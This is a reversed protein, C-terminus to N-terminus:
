FLTGLQFLPMYIALIMTGVLIALLVLTIPELLTLWQQVRHNLASEYDEAAKNLMKPLTGTQEGMQIMDLMLPPLIGAESLSHHLSQGAQLSQTIFPWQCRWLPQDAIGIANDLAKLLPLGSDLLIALTHAFRVWAAQQRLSHILPWPRRRGLYGGGAIILVLYGGWERVWHACQFLTETLPPLPAELQMFLQEFRPMLGLLLGLMVLAGVSIICLPYLLAQQLRQRLQQQKAQHQSIRTLMLPLQGSAEGANILAQYLGGFYLSFPTLAQSLTHGQQVEGLVQSLLQRLPPQTQRQITIELAQGLPLGAQLLTGLHRTTWHLTAPKIRSRWPPERYVTKPQLGQAQLYQKVHTASQAWYHGRCAAGHNFHAQWYFLRTNPSTTTTSTINM